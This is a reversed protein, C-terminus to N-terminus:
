FKTRKRRKNIVSNYRRKYFSSKGRFAYSFSVQGVLYGDNSDPNGRIAGNNYFGADPFNADGEIARRELTRSALLQSEVYPLQTAPDKVYRTSVDDLYDTFTARYGIEMGIRFNRQFTFYFGGGFPLAFSVKEYESSQGETRLERLNYTKGQYEATPNFYFASFGGFIYAKFDNRYRGTRNLDGITWFYYEVTTSLEIVDTKFSLNRARRIPDDTLSDASALRVYNLAMKGAFRNHFRYRAFAGGSFNTADLNMDMFSNKPSGKPGGLEGLYNSVGLSVGVDLNYQANVCISSIALGIFILIKRM